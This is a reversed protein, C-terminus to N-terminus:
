CITNFIQMKCTHSHLDLAWFSNLPHPWLVVMITIFRFILACWGFNMRQWVFILKATVTYSLKCLQKCLYHNGIDNDNSSNVSLCMDVMPWYTAQALQSSLLYNPVYNYSINTCHPATIVTLRGVFIWLLCGMAWGNPRTHLTRQPDLMQIINQRM